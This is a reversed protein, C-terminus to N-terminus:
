YACNASEKAEPDKDKLVSKRIKSLIVDAGVVLDTNLQRGDRLGVTPEDEAVSGVHCGLFFRTGSEKAADYPIKQYVQM